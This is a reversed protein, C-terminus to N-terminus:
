PWTIVSINSFAAGLSFVTLLLCVLCEKSLSLPGYVWFVSQNAPFVTKTTLTGHRQLQFQNWCSLGLQKSMRQGRGNYLPRKTLWHVGLVWMKFFLTTAKSCWKSLKPAHLQLSFFFLRTDRPAMRIALLILSRQIFQQICFGKHKWAVLLTNWGTQKTCLADSM